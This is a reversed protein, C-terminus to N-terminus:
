PKRIDFLNGFLVDSDFGKRNVCPHKKNLFNSIEGFFEKYQLRVM